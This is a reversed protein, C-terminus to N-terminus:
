LLMSSLVTRYWFPNWDQGPVVLICPKTLDFKAELRLVNEVNDFEFNHVDHSHTRCLSSMDHDLDWVPYLELAQNIFELFTTEEHSDLLSLLEPDIRRLGPRDDLNVLGQFQIGYPAQVMIQGGETPRVGVVDVIDFGVVYFIDKAELRLKVQRFWADQNDRTLIPIAKQYRVTNDDM